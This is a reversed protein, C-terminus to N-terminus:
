DLCRTLLCMVEAHKTQAFMDMIALRTLKFEGSHLLPAIDRVMTDAHCSVYLIARPQTKAVWAPFHNLGPRPPDVIMLDYQGLTEPPEKFLDSTEFTANSLGYNQAHARAKNVMSEELEIGHVAGVLPAFTLAFPGLGCCLDLLTDQATPKLWTIANELMWQAVEKNIQIFDFAGASLTLKGCQYDIRELGDTLQGAIQNQINLYNEEVNDTLEVVNLAKNAQIFLRIAHQKMFSQLLFLDNHSPLGLLRIIFSEESAGSMYELQPILERCELGHLLSIWREPWAPNELILCTKIKAIFRPDRERFGVYMQDKKKDYRVSLRARRRYQYPSLFVDEIMTEDLFLNASQFLKKIPERRMKIQLDRNIHQWTCAGCIDFHVCRPTVRHPSPEHIETIEAFFQSGKIKTIKVTLDDGIVAQPIYIQQKEWKGVGHGDEHLDIVAVRILQGKTLM